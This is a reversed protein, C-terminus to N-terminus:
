KKKEYEEHTEVFNDTHKLKGFFLSELRQILYKIDSPFPSYVIFRFSALLITFVTCLVICGHLGVKHSSCSPLDLIKFHGNILRKTKTNIRCRRLQILLNHSSQNYMELMNGISKVVIAYRFVSSNNMNSISKQYISFKVNTHLSLIFLILCKGLNAVKRLLHFLSIDFLIHHVYIRKTSYSQETKRKM